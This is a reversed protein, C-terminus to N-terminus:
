VHARGIQQTLRIALRGINSEADRERLYMSIGEFLLHDRQAKAQFTDTGALSTMAVDFHPGIDRGATLYAIFQHWAPWKQWDYGYQGILFAAIIWISFVIRNEM